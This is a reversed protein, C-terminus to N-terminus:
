ESTTAERMWPFIAINRKSLASPELCERITMDEKACLLLDGGLNSVSNRREKSRDKAMRYSGM